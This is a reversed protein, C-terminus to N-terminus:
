ERHARVITLEAQTCHSSCLPPNCLGGCVVVVVNSGTGLEPCVKRLVNDYVVAASIGCAPEVAVREDDMLRVTGMAAQADSLVVSRVNGHRALEFARRAVRRTGLSTAISSVGDLEVLKGAKLCAALGAAGEPEVAILPIHALGRELLGIQVGCFLGGGGVSLIIADLAQGGELVAEDLLEDVLTKNGEWIDEADFPPCYVGIPDAAVLARTHADADSWSAGHTIVTGGAAQIKSKMLPTTTTPVIVTAHQGLSKSATVAALGANGGSSSYFHIPRNPRSLVAKLCYNGIGRSKFSGAPQFMDMKMHVRCGAVKSLANSEILPTRIWPLKQSSSSASSPQVPNAETTVM